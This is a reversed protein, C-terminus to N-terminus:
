KYEDDLDPQMFSSVHKLDDPTEQRDNYRDDSNSEEVKDKKQMKWAGKQVMSAAYNGTLDAVFSVPIMTKASEPDSLAGMVVWTIGASIASHALPGIDSEPGVVSPLIRSALVTAAASTGGVLFLMETSVPSVAGKMSRVIFLGALAYVGVIAPTTFDFEEENM